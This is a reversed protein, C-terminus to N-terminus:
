GRSSLKNGGLQNVVVTPWCRRRIRFETMKSKCPLYIRFKIKSSGFEKRMKKGPWSAAAAAVVVVAMENSVGVLILESKLSEDRRRRDQRKLNFNLEGWAPKKVWCRRLKKNEWILTKLKSFRTSFRENTRGIRGFSTSRRGKGVKLNKM